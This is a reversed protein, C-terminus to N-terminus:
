SRVWVATIKRRGNHLRYGLRVRKHSTYSRRITQIIENEISRNLSSGLAIFHFEDIGDLWVLMQDHEEPSASTSNKARVRTQIQRISLYETTFEVPLADIPPNGAWHITREAGQIRSEIANVARPIYTSDIHYDYVGFPDIAYWLSPIQTTGLTFGPSSVLLNFHNHSIDVGDDISRRITGIKTGATIWDGVAFTITNPQIHQYLTFFRRGNSTQHSLMVGGQAGSNQSANLLLAVRGDATAHVDHLPRPTTFFRFDFGGHIVRTPKDDDIRMWADSLSARSDKFPLSLGIPRGIQLPDDLFERLKQGIPFEVANTGNVDDAQVFPQLTIETTSPPDGISEPDSSNYEPDAHVATYKQPRVLTRGPDPNPLVDGRAYALLNLNIQFRLTHSTPTNNAFVLDYTDNPSGWGTYLESQEGRWYSGAGNTSDSPNLKSLFYRSM